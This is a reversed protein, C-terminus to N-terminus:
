PLSCRAPCPRPGARPSRGRAQRPRRLVAPQIPPLCSHSRCCWRDPARHTERPARRTVSGISSGLSGVAVPARLKSTGVLPRVYGQHPPYSSRPRPTPAYPVTATRPRVPPSRSSGHPVSTVCARGRCRPLWAQRRPPPLLPYRPNGPAGCGDGRTRLPPALRARSAVRPTRLRTSGAPSASRSAVAVARRAPEADPHVDEPRM